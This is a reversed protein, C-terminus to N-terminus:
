ISGKVQTSLHTPDSPTIPPSTNVGLNGLHTHANFFTQFTQGNLISELTGAGIETVPSNIVTKTTSNVSVESDGTTAVNAASNIAVESAANIEIKGDNTLVIKSGSADYLAVAGNGLNKLRFKRDDLAICIGHERNGGAFVCIGEATSIPNSTFGYNQFREMEKVEGAYLNVQVEQIGTSDKISALVCRGISLQVSRKIPDVVKRIMKLIMEPKM